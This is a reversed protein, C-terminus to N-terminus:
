GVKVNVNAQEAAAILISIQLQHFTGPGILTVSTKAKKTKKVKKPKLLSSDGVTTATNNVPSPQISDKCLGLGRTLLLSIAARISRCTSEYDSMQSTPDLQLHQLDLLPYVREVLGQMQSASPYGVTINEVVSPDDTHIPSTSKLLEIGKNSCSIIPKVQQSQKSVAPALTTHGTEESWVCARLGDSAYLDITMCVDGSLEGRNSGVDGLLSSINNSKAANAGAAASSFKPISSATQVNQLKMGAGISSIANAAPAYHSLHM